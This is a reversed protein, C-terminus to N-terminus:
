VLFKCYLLSHANNLRWYLAKLDEGKISGSRQEPVTIFCFDTIKNTNQEVSIERPKFFNLLIIYWLSERLSEKEQVQM